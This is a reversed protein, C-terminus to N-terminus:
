FRGYKLYAQQPDEGELIAKRVLNETNMVEEVREALEEVISGPIKLVGDLDAFIYDGASVTVSGIKIDENYSDPVWTGVVDRPTLYSCFVPFKTDLVYGTDRSGGDVVYGKVGRLQLTEASLEGMHAITLDNPQCVVVHGEPARSLFETWKLLTEHPDLGKELHGSVTFAPGAIKMSQKLPKIEHPFVCDEVGMERLADYVAGSYVQELRQSNIKIQNMEYGKKMLTSM